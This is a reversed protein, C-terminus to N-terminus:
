KIKPKTKRRSQKKVKKFGDRLAHETDTVISYKGDVCDLMVTKVKNGVPPLQVKVDGYTVVTVAENNLIVPCEKIM